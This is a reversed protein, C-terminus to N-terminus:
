PTISRGGDVTITQGSIYPAYKVLFLVTKAIDEPEGMRALPIQKILDAQGIEQNGAEPWLIAGPAIANVRIEPALDQALSKTLLELGAKAACYVPHNSLPRQAYIDVINIICGGSARLHQAASKVLFAPAKLNSGMLDNWFGEEILEIPTPYFTSANNILVDLRGFQDMCAEVVLPICSTDLLDAAFSAASNPNQENLEDVLSQAAGASSRYHLMINFGAAHLSRAIVAGIRRAGGTVIIAPRLNSEITSSM